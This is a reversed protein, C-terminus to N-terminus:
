SEGGVWKTTVAYSGASLRDNLMKLLLVQDAVSFGVLPVDLVVHASMQFISNVDPTYVDAATKQQTVKFLHRARKTNSTHSLEAGLISTTDDFRYKTVNGSTFVKALNKTVANYTVELPDGIAM